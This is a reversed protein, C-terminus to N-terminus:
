LCPARRLTSALRRTRSTRFSVTYRLQQPNTILWRVRGSDGHRFGPGLSHAVEQRTARNVVRISDPDLVGELGQRRAEVSFDILPDAPLNSKVLRSEVTVDLRGTSKRSTRAGPLRVKALYINTKGDSSVIEPDAAEVSLGTTVVVILLVLRRRM